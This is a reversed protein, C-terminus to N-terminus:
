SGGKWDRDRPYLGVERLYATTTTTPPLLPRLLTCGRPAFHRSTARLTTFHRSTACLPAPHRLTACPPAFHRLTACLPAPHHLTACPPAFHRLTLFCYVLSDPFYWSERSCQITTFYTSNNPNGMPYQVLCWLDIFWANLWDNLQDFLWDIDIVLPALLCYYAFPKNNTLLCYNRLCCPLLIIRLCLQKDVFSLQSPLVIVITYLPM